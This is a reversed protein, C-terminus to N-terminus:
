CLNKIMQLVPASHPNVNIIITNLNILATPDTHVRAGRVTLNDGAHSAHDSQNVMIGLNLHHGPRGEQKVGTGAERETQIM